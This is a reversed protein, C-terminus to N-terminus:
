VDYSFGEYFYLAVNFGKSYRQIIHFENCDYEILFVYAFLFFFPNSSEHFFGVKEMEVEELNGAYRMVYVGIYMNNISLLKNM